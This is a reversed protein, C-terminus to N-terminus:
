VNHEFHCKVKRVSRNLKMLIQKGNAVLVMLILVIFTDPPENSVIDLWDYAYNVGIFHQMWRDGYKWIRNENKLFENM